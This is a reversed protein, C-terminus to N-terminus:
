INSLISGSFPHPAVQTLKRQTHEASMYGAHCMGMYVLYPLLKKVVFKGNKVVVVLIKKASFGSFTRGEELLDISSTVGNYDIWDHCHSGM